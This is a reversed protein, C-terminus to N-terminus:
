LTRASRKRIIEQWYGLSDVPNGHEDKDESIPWGTAPNIVDYFPKNVDFRKGKERDTKQGHCTNSHGRQGCLLWMNLPDHTGGQARGILHDAESAPVVRGWLTLCRVCVGKDRHRVIERSRNWNM